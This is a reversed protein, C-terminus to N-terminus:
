AFIGRLILILISFVAVVFATGFAWDQFRSKGSYETFGGLFFSVSTLLAVACAINYTM